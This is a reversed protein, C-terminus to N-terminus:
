KTTKGLKKKTTLNQEVHFQAPKLNNERCFNIYLEQLKNAGRVAAEDQLFKSAFKM